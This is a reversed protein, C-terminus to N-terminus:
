SDFASRHLDVNPCAQTAIQLHRKVGNIENIKADM